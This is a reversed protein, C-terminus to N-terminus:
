CAPPGAICSTGSRQREKQPHPAASHFICQRVFGLNVRIPAGSVSHCSCSTTCYKPRPELFRLFSTLNQSTATECGQRKSTGRLDYIPPQVGATPQRWWSTQWTVFPAFFLVFVHQTKISVEQYKINKREKRETINWPPTSGRRERINLRMVKGVLMCLSSDFHGMM